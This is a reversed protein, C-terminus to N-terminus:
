QTRCRFPVKTLWAATVRIGATPPRERPMSDDHGLDKKVAKTIDLDDDSDTTGNSAGEMTALHPGYFLNFSAPHLLVRGWSRRLFFLEGCGSVIVEVHWLQLFQVGEGVGLVSCGRRRWECGCLFDMGVEGGWVRGRVRGRRGPAGELIGRSVDM